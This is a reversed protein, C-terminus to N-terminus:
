GSVQKRIFDRVTDKGFLWFLFWIFSWTMVFATVFFILAVQWDTLYTLFGFGGIGSTIGVIKNRVRRFFGPKEADEKPEPAPPEPVVPEPQPAPEDPVKFYRDTDKKPKPLPATMGPPMRAAVLKSKRERSVTVGGGQGNGQNGGICTLFTGDDDIAINVHGSPPAGRPWVCIAGRPVKGKLDVATGYKTYSRAMLSGSPKIGVEALWCGVAAACWATEDDKIGPHGAKAYMELVRKNHKPGAIESLGLDRFAAKLHPPDSALARAM